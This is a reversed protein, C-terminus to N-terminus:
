LLAFIKKFNCFNIIQLHPIVNKTKKKNFKHMDNNYNKYRCQHMRKISKEITINNDINTLFCGKIKINDENIKDNKNRIM